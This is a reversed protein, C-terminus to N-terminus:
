QVGEWARGCLAPYACYKCPAEHEAQYHKDHEKEPVRLAVLLPPANKKPAVHIEGRSLSKMVAGVTRDVRTWTLDLTAGEIVRKPKMREDTTLVRAAGIAFYGAPPLAGGRTGRVARAYIALQVALGKELLERYSSAGWKLDLVAPEGADDILRVDLRGSLKGIASDIAISEEVGAIRFGADELYRRLERMAHTIQRTLQAREFAGGPLLLTAGETAILRELVAGVRASFNDDSEEFASEKHLEEVLRHSLNGNLMPGDAVRALAGSRLDARHEIVWGLPCGALKELATAYAGRTDEEAPELLEAPVSWLARAHPLALPDLATIEALDGSATELLTRAHRTIRGVAAEDLRLRASIEDWLPHPSMAESKVTGPIVLVVRERAALVARRWAAADAQLLKGADPFVVGAAKLAAREARNWPLVLPRAAASGVFGWLVVTSAPALIANPHAVHPIRGAREISLSHGEAARVVTDLLHRADEHTLLTRSENALAETFAQAQAYAAGYTAGADGTADTALRRQLWTRVRSALALLSERTTGDPGAGPAELWEVVREMRANSYAEGAAEADAPSAGKSLQRNVEGKKLVEAARARQKTWEQGGVGPQKSVARALKSGIVGHFPGVPLTLLELVRYPDRPEFALELALPLIQMAPRAGSSGVHGQGPLGQRVIAAELPAGDISRVVLAGERHRALLGSTLAALEAPTEGRLVLLTGDGRISSPLSVSTADPAPDRQGDGRLLRQLVGLDTTAPAGPFGHGAEASELKTGREELLTFIHQWRRSWLARTEVLTLSDYVRHRTSRLEAEVIALRDAPSPGLDIETHAETAALADLRASGNPVVKGDWGAEVLADRWALLAGATGLADAAFSQAYFASADNVAEIRSKFCPVRVSAPAVVFPLGLRLHLDRLLEGPGWIPEGLRAKGDVDRATFTPGGLGWGVIPKM